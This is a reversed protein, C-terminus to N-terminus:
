DDDEKEKEMLFTLVSEWERREDDVHEIMLEFAKGIADKLEFAGKKTAHVDVLRLLLDRSLKMEDIVDLHPM